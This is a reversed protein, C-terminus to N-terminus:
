LRALQGQFPVGNKSMQVKRVSWHNINDKFVQKTILGLQKLYYWKRHEHRLM